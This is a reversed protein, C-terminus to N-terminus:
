ALGYLKVTEKNSECKRFLVRLKIKLRELAGETVLRARRNRYDFYPKDYSSYSSSHDLFIRSALDFDM